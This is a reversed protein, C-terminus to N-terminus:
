VSLKILLVVLLIRKLFFTLTFVHNKRIINKLFFHVIFIYAYSPQYVVTKNRSILVQVYQLVDPFYNSGDVFFDIICWHTM